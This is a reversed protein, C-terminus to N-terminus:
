GKCNRGIIHVHAIKEVEIKGDLRLVYDIHLLCNSSVRLFFLISELMSWKILFLISELMSWKIQWREM